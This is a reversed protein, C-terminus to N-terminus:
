FSLLVVALPATSLASGGRHHLARRYRGSYLQKPRQPLQQQVKLFTPRGKQAKTCYLSAGGRYVKCGWVAPAPLAKRMQGKQRDKDADEAFRREIGSFVTRAELNDGEKKIM